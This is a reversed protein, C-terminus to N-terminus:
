VMHVLLHKDNVCHLMELLEDVKIVASAKIDLAVTAHELWMTVPLMTWASACCNAAMDLHVLLVSQMASYYM